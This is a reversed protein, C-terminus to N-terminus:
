FSSLAARKWTNTAVCRYEYNSDWSEMGITCTSTSTPPTYSQELITSTGNVDLLAHPTTTGIGVNSSSASVYLLGDNYHTRVDFAGNGNIYPVVYQDGITYNQGLQLSGSGTTSANTWAMIPDTGRGQIASDFSPASLASRAQVLGGGQFQLEYNSASPFGQTINLIGQGFNTGNGIAAYWNGGSASASDQLHLVNENASSVQLATDPSTTGVGLRNNTNDWFLNQNANLASASGYFQLMGPTGSATVGSGSGGTAAITIQGPTSTTITVNSGAVLTTPAYIGAGVDALLQGQSTPATSTGTGGTSVTLPTTLSLTSASIGHNATIAGNTITVANSADGLFLTSGVESYVELPGSPAQITNRTANKLQFMTWSPNSQAFSALSETSTGSPTLSFSLTNGGTFQTNFTNGSSDTLFPGYADFSVPHTAFKIPQSFTTECGNGQQTNCLLTNDLAETGTAFTYSDNVVQVLTNYTANSAMDYYGGIINSSTDYFSNAFYGGNTNTMKFGYVYHVMEILNGAAYTGTDTSPAVGDVEFAANGGSSPTVTNGTLVIGNAYQQAYVARRINGFYNDEIHTTYGSFATSPTRGGLVIADQEPTGGYASTKGWFTDDRILLTTNSTFLFNTTGDTTDIFSINEFDLSGYGTTIIKYDNSGGAYRLDLQTGGDPNLGLADSQSAGQGIMRIAPQQPTGGGSNPFNLQSDIVCTGAPILITGGGANNVATIAANFAVSDDTSGDCKAGFDKVSVTDSLKSTLTRSTSSAL